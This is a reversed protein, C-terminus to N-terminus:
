SGDHRVFPKMGGGQDAGQPSPRLRETETDHNRQQQLQTNPLLGNERFLLRQNYNTNPQEAQKRQEDRTEALTKGSRTSKAESEYM